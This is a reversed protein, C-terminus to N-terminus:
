RQVEPPSLEHCETPEIDHLPFQKELQQKRSQAGSSGAIPVASEPLAEMYRRAQLWLFLLLLIESFSRFFLPEKFSGDIRPLIALVHIICTVDM